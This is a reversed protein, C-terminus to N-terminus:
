LISCTIQHPWRRVSRFFKEKSTENNKKEKWIFILMFFHTHTLAIHCKDACILLNLTLRRVRIMGLHVWTLWDSLNQYSTVRNEKQKLSILFILLCQKVEVFVYTQIEIYLTTSFIVSKNWLMHDTLSFLDTRDYTENKKWGM